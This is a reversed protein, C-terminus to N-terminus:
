RYKPTSVAFNMGRALVHLEPDSLVRDSCNRVWRGICESAISKNNDKLDKQKDKSHDINDKKAILRNFKKIQRQKCDGNEKTQAHAIFNAVEKRTTDNNIQKDVVDEFKAKQENLFKIKHNIQTIRLNM